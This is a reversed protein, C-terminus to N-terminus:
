NLQHDVESFCQNMRQRIASLAERAEDGQVVIEFEVKRGISIPVLNMGQPLTRGISTELIEMDCGFCEAIKMAQPLFAPIVQFKDFLFITLKM